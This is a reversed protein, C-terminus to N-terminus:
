QVQRKGVTEEKARSSWCCVLFYDWYATTTGQHSSSWRWSFMQPNDTDEVYLTCFNILSHQTNNQQMPHSTSTMEVVYMTLRGWKRKLVAQLLQICRHHPATAPLSLRWAPGQALVNLRSYHCHLPVPLTTSTTETVHMNVTERRKDKSLKCFSIAESM